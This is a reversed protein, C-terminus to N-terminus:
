LIEVPMFRNQLSATLAAGSLVIVWAIYIWLLLIPVAGLSGYIKSYSVAHETYMSYGWRALNWFIATFLASVLAYGTHVKCHPVWKYISFFIATTILFVGTGTPFLSAMPINATTAFGVAVALALPGLTIFLWYSAIRAFWGRKVPALWVSNIAKEISSLMSTSTFILGFLGGVGIASAHANDIFSHLTKMVDESAGETLNSLIFPELSADLKEMGGFAHFVAFSVALLPIVSLITTYALSSAVLLLQAKRTQNWTDMLINRLSALYPLSNM